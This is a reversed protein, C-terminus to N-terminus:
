SALAAPVSKGLTGWSEGDEAANAAVTQGEIVGMRQFFEAAPAPRGYLFGQGYIRLNDTSFYNAQSESEIGEVVVGLNLSRAMNIIQPLIAVSPSETGIARVFAKDIKITDVSLYLLYSLNSYGTGFDDIYIGYGMRRLLRISELADPHNAASTETVEIAVSSPSVKAQKVIADFSPLFEPDMLDAAAVNVNLRFEPTKHLVERFESLARRLVLNTISGVFGHEEATKVFVDPSVSIGDKNTWRALAEAGVIKGSALNVIPQYVLHLKEKALARRLQQDLSTSRRFLFCIGIGFLAGAVGGVFTTGYIVALLSHRAEGVSVSATVCASRILSCHEAVLMDGQQIVGDATQSSSAALAAQISKTSAKEPDPVTTLHIPLNGQVVPLHSGFLVFVGNQQLGAMKRSQDRIPVISTLAAARHANISATTFHGIPISPRGAIASCEIRGRHMRGADKLYDSHFVLDRFNGLEAESCPADGSRELVALLNRAEQVSASEQINVRDIYKQLQHEAIPIALFCGLSFGIIAGLTATAVVTAQVARTHEHRKRM